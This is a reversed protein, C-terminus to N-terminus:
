RTWSRTPSRRCWRTSTRGDAPAPRGPEPAAAPVAQQDQFKAPIFAKPEPVFDRTARASSATAASTATRSAATSGRTTPAWARSSRSAARGGQRRLLLEGPRAAQGPDPHPLLRRHDRHQLLRGGPRPRVHGHRPQGPPDHQLGQRLARDHRRVGPHRADRLRRDAGRRPLGRGRAPHVQPDARPRRRLRHRAASPLPRRGPRRAAGQLGGPAAPDRQDAQAQRSVAQRRLRGHLHRRAEHLGQLGHDAHLPRRDDGPPYSINGDNAAAFGKAYVRRGIECMQERLKWESMM